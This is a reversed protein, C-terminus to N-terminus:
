RQVLFDPSTMMLLAALQARSTPGDYDPDFENTLPLEEVFEIITARTADSLTGYTLLGDLHDVLAQPDTALAIEESYDAIFSTRARTPSFSVNLFDFIDELVDDELDEAQNAVFYTMFNAFGAITSTNILQFEPMTLGQAGTQTGPAVYGPRFFNFVSPARYPQQSLAEPSSTYWLQFTAEPSITGADFARAWNAFRIVPERVKGFSSGAIDPETRADEDFLIAAVTAQMDGRRGDGVSRGDPLNYSGNEFATAVRRLYDPSPHSTVLRQILQRSVFPAVSPQDFIHDLAQEISDEANTGAAITLGLFSKAEESHFQDYILMPEDLESERDFDCTEGGAFDIDFHDCSFSLGTFVRALGTIDSNDYTEIPNNSGDLRQSGDLELENLGITFLQMLERAYNEDPMRGTEPDGKRNGLYTLYHGMAPSYTVDEILDRYNGFANRVLIDQYYGLAEPESALLDSSANSVVLIESLAFAVRQRLQDQGAIANYWFSFLTTMGAFNSFEDDPTEDFALYSNIRPLNLSAPANFQSVIWDSPATGTLTDLDLKTPGFTAQTLFRATSDRTEFAASAPEKPPPPTTPPNPPPTSTDEDGGNCAALLGISVVALAMRAMRLFYRSEAVALEGKKLGSGRRCHRKLGAVGACRM